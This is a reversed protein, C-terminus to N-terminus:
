GEIDDPITIVPITNILEIMEMTERVLRQHRTLAEGFEGM